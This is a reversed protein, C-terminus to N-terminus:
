CTTTTVIRLHPTQRFSFSNKGTTSTTVMPMLLIPILLSSRQKRKTVSAMTTVTKCVVLRLQPGSGGESSEIDIGGAQTDGTRPYPTDRDFFALDALAPLTFDWRPDQSILFSATLDSQQKVFDTVNMFRERYNDRDFLLQGQLHLSNGQDEIYRNAILNGAPTDQSLNPATDWTVNGGEAWSDDDMGYLHCQVPEGNAANVTRGEMTIVALQIDPPYITPLDFQILAANRNNISTPDNQALLTETTEFSTTSSSGDTVTSDVSVNLLENSESNGAPVTIL